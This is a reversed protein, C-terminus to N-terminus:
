KITEQKNVPPPVTSNRKVQGQIAALGVLRNLPVIVACERYEGSFRSM